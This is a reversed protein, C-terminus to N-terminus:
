HKTTASHETSLSASDTMWCERRGALGGAACGAWWAGLSATRFDAASGDCGPLSSAQFATTLSRGFGLNTWGKKRSIAHVSFALAPRTEHASFRAPDAYWKRAVM